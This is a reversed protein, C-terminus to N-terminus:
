LLVKQWGDTDSSSVGVTFWLYTRGTAKEGWRGEADEGAPSSYDLLPYQMQLGTFFGQAIAPLGKPKYTTGNCLICGSEGVCCLRDDRIFHPVEIGIPLV